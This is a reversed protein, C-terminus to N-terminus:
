ATVEVVRLRRSTAQSKGHRASITYEHDTLSPDLVCNDIHAVDNIAVAASEIVPLQLESGQAIVAREGANSSTSGAIISKDQIKCKGYAPAIDPGYVTVRAPPDYQGTLDNWPGTGTGARTITCTDLMNAEALARGDAVTQAVIQAFTATEISM